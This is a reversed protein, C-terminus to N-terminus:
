SSAVTASRLWPPKGHEAESARAISELDVADKYTDMSKWFGAHRYAFLEGRSGLRPLVDDELDGAWGDFVDKDM